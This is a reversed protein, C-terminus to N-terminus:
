FLANQPPTYTVLKRVSNRAGPAGPSPSSSVHGLLIGPIAAGGGEEMYYDKAGKAGSLGGMSVM